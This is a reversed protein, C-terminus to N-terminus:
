FKRNNYGSRPIDHYFDLAFLIWIPLFADFGLFSVVWLMLKWFLKLRNSEIWTLEM